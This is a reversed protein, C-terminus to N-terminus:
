KLLFVKKGVIPICRGVLEVISWGILLTAALMIMVDIFGYDISFGYKKIVYELIKEIPRCLVYMGFANRSVSRLIRKGKNIAMGSLLKFVCFSELLIIVSNYEQSYFNREANVTLFMYYLISITFVVVLILAMIKKNLKM